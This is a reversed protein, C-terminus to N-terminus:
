VAVGAEARMLLRLVCELGYDSERAVDRPSRGSLMPHERCLFMEATRNDGHYLRVTERLVTAVRDSEEKTLRGGQV